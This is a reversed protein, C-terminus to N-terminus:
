RETDIGYRRRGERRRRFWATARVMLEGLSKCAGATHENLAGWLRVTLSVLLDVIHLCLLAIGLVVLAVALGAAIVTPVLLAAAAVLLLATTVMLLRGLDILLNEFAYGASGAAVVPLCLGLLGMVGVGPLVFAPLLGYQAVYTSVQWSVALGGEILAFTALLPLAAKWPISKHVFLIGAATEAAQIVAALLEAGPLELTAGHLLPVIFPKLEGPIVVSVALRLLLWNAALMVAAVVAIAAGIFAENKWLRRGSERLHCWLDSCVRMGVPWVVGVAPRIAAVLVAVASRIVSILHARSAVLCVALISVVIEALM